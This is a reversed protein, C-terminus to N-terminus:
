LEIRKVDIRKLGSFPLGVITLRDVFWNKLQEKFYNVKYGHSFNRKENKSFLVYIEM